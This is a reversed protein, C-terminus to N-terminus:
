QAAQALTCAAVTVAQGSVIDPNDMLLETGIAVDVRKSDGTNRFRAWGAKGNAIATGDASTTFSPIPLTISCLLTGVAAHNATTPQSGTYVDLLKINATILDTILNRAGNNLRAAM